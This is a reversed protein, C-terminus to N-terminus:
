PGDRTPADMADFADAISLAVVDPRQMPGFHGLGPLIEIQGAPLRAAMAAIQDPGFHPLTGGCVIRVQCTVEGLREFAGHHLAMEYITAEDEKRCRLRVTGDALDEFGYDVYARVADPALESFPPKNLYHAYAEDRGAFVERRRRTSEAMAEARGPVSAAGAQPVVPEYCYMSRLTGPRAEEALVLAAGGASHGVARPQELGLGEIVAKVDLAFGGWEYTGGPAKGSCGHGRADFAVCRFQDRLQRALPLWVLAHFGTAHCLLLPPGQGGLEYTAIDVGDPTTVPPGSTFAPTTTAVSAL